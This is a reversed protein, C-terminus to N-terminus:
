DLSKLKVNTEYSMFAEYHKRISSVILDFMITYESGGGKHGGKKILSLDPELSSGLIPLQNLFCYPAKSDGKEFGEAIIKVEKAFDEMVDILVRLNLSLSSFESRIDSVSLDMSKLEECTHLVKDMESKLDSFKIPLIENNIYKDIANWRNYHGDKIYCVGDGRYEMMDGIIRKDSLIKRYDKERAEIYGKEFADRDTYTPFNAKYYEESEKAGNDLSSMSEKLFDNVRSIFSNLEDYRKEDLSHQKFYKKVGILKIAKELNEGLYVEKLIDRVKDIAPKLKNLNDLYVKLFLEYKAQLNQSHGAVRVAVAAKGILNDSMYDANETLFINYWSTEDFETYLNGISEQLYKFGSGDKLAIALWGSTDEVRESMLRIAEECAKDDINEWKAKNRIEEISKIEDVEGM